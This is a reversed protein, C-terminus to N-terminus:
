RLLLHLCCASNAWLWLLALQRPQCCAPTASALLVWHWLRYCAPIVWALLLVSHCPLQLCHANTVQLLLQLCCAPTVSEQPLVPKM